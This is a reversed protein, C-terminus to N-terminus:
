ICFPCINVNHLTSAELQHVTNRWNTRWKVYFCAQTRKGSVRTSKRALQQSIRGGELPIRSRPMWELSSVGRCRHYPSVLSVAFLEELGETLLLRLQVRFLRRDAPSRSNKDKGDWGCKFQLLEETNILSSEEWVKEAAKKLVFCFFCVAKMQCKQEETIACDEEKTVLM